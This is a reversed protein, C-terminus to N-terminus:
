KPVYPYFPRSGSLGCSAAVKNRRAALMKVCFEASLSPHEESLVLFLLIPLVTREILYSNFGTITMLYSNFITNQPDRM